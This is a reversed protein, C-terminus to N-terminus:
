AKATLSSCRCARATRARSLFGTRDRLDDSKFDVKPRFLVDSKGSTLDYRFITPPETFSVYSYFTETDRRKGTFGGPRASAPCRLKVPRNAPSILCGSSTFARGEPLQAIFRDGVVSSARSSTKPKRFSRAFRTRSTACRDRRHAGRPANLNTRFWFVSGDNDLFQVARGTQEAARRGECGAPAPGQLLHQKKPDTGQSVNIILYDGDDTVEASFNWDKHDPREYILVDDSQPTGLKHFIFRRSIIRASEASRATPEDYRSYFFGAAM